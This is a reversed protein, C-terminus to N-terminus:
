VSYPSILCVQSLGPLKRCPDRVRVDVGFHLGRLRSAAACGKPRPHTRFCFCALQAARSRRSPPNQESSNSIIGSHTKLLQTWALIAAEKLEGQAPPLLLLGHVLGDEEQLLSYRIICSIFLVVFIIVAFLCLSMFYFMWADVCLLSSSLSLAVVVVVLSLSLSSLLLLSLSCCCGGGRGAPPPGCTCPAPPRASAQRGAPSPPTYIYTYIYMYIYIYIYIYICVYIYIYICMTYAYM